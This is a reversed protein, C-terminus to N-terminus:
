GTPIRIWTATYVVPGSPGPRRSGGPPEVSVALGQAHALDLGHPVSLTLRMGPRSPLLGLSRPPQNGALMWLQYSHAGVPTPADTEVRLHRAHSALSLVWAPRAPAGLVAVQVPGKQAIGRFFLTGFLLALLSAALALSPWLASTHSRTRRAIGHWVSPPPRVPAVGAALPLLREGWAAALRALEPDHAMLHEFRRRAGGKLTGLAYEAALLDRVAPDLRNM